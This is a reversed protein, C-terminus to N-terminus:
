GFLNNTRTFMETVATKLAKNEPKELAYDDSSIRRAVDQTVTLMKTDTLMDALKLDPLGHQRAGFFDGPGRLKLDEDAIKFGDATKAMIDLRRRSEENQADSILICTSRAAGRGVRGRLQHLQSLGFREANEIVMIAANPVDVGVEIVTTAVLLQTEGSVFSKMVAEKEKPKMKGHLLGVSYGRFAGISLKEAYEQAAAADVEESEEVLPCVIYGQMGSDLHKKIYNYARIRKDTNVAYTEVVHRGPPLEDLVSIDLDGYIILALTRPIPTASMVLMHPNDGKGFLASRQRVGFRHQEDVVVFGLSKFEVDDQIIAHTGIVLQTDGNALAAKIARKEAAKTSGTLLAVTIGTDKLLASLTKFHQQALIETPAMLASQYGNKAVSYILAAAVATKGSGVDGQLLRSMPMGKSMDAMAEGATRLQARTPTFPLHSFFEPCFNNTIKISTSNKSRGKLRILGLQLLLFEEFILRRRAASLEDANQPFHIGRLATKIDVLRYECRLYEPLADTLDDETVAFAAAVLKEIANTGLSATQPYIPRIKKGSKVPRIEPSSMERYYLNGTVKGYFLFEEGEVLKEASYKSNFITIKILSAGDTAETTFITLGKRIMQASPKRDVFARICCPENFPADAISVPDSWDEYMRPYFRLLDGVTFINLRQLFVARKEGVGKLYRIDSDLRM